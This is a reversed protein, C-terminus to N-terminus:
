EKASDYYEFTVTLKNFCHKSIMRNIIKNTLVNVYLGTSTLFVFLLLTLLSAAAHMGIHRANVSAEAFNSNNTSLLTQYFTFINAEHNYQNSDVENKRADAM